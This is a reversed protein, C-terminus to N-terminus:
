NLDPNQNRIIEWVYYPERTGDDVSGDMSTKDDNLNETQTAYANITIYYKEGERENDEVVNAYKVGTFLEDTVEDKKLKAMETGSGYAYVYTYYGTDALDETDAEILAWNSSLGELTFLQIDKEDNKTGDENATVRVEHPILVELFVYEDNEGINSVTPNKAIVEKPVIEDPVEWKDEHLETAVRGIEFQNLVSDGDSLYAVIGGIFACAAIACVVIALKSKKIM